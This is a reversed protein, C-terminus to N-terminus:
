KKGDRLLLPLGVKQKKKKTKVVHMGLVCNKRGRWFTTAAQTLVCNEPRSKM